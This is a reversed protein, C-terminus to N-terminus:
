INDALTDGTDDSFLERTIQGDNDLPQLEEITDYLYEWNEDPVHNAKFLEIAKKDAEEQTEADIEFHNRLWISHKVDEYFSFTEM